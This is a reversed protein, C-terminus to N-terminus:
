REATPDEGRELATWMSAQARAQERQPDPAEYRTSMGSWRGGRVAVVVGAVIVVVGSAISLAGWVPQTTVHTAVASTVSVRPQKASVLARARSTSIAALASASRWVLGAGALAVLGGVVRRALARTALIAVVGALAVLALATPASDVVRGSLNLVDDAFPRPRAVHVSQWARTAILLAAGSGVADL